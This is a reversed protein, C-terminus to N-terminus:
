EMFLNWFLLLGREYLLMGCATLETETSGMSQAGGAPTGSPSPNRAATCSKPLVVSCDGMNNVVSFPFASLCSFSALRRGCPCLHDQWAHIELTWSQVFFAGKRDECHGGYAICPLVPSIKNCLKMMQSCSESLVTKIHLFCNAILYLFFRGHVVLLKTMYSCSVTVAHWNAKFCDRPHRASKPYHNVQPSMQTSHIHCMKGMRVKCGSFTCVSIM